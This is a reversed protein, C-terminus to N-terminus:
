SGGETPETPMETVAPRRRGVLLRGLGFGVAAVVLTGLVGAVATSARANGIPVVEYDPLPAGVAPESEREAFGLMQAVRELGDPRSSAFPALVAAVLVALGLVIWPWHRKM